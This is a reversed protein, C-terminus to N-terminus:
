ECGLVLKLSSLSYTGIALGPDIRIQRVFPVRTAVSVHNIGPRITRRQPNFANMLVGGESVFYFAAYTEQESVIDLEVNLIPTAVTPTYLIPPGSEGIFKGKGQARGRLSTLAEGPVTAEHTCIPTGPHLTFLRGLIAVFASTDPKPRISRTVPNSVYNWLAIPRQSEDGYYM